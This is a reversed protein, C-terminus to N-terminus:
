ERFLKKLISYIIKHGKISFHIGVGFLFLDSVGGGNNYYGILYDALNLTTIDKRKLVNIMLKQPSLYNNNRMRLQYEYPLLVVYLKIEYKDLINKIGTLNAVAKLFNPNQENYFKEDFLYYAKQRDTFTGKILHYLKFNNRFFIVIKNFFGNSKIEPTKIATYNSYVDNLCWFIFVSDIGLKNGKDFLKKVINLYDKSSYGVLSPNLVAVNPLTNNLLGPFTSDSEIGLGMTISDGLFLWKRKSDKVAKKYKWFGLANIYKVVGNSLGYSNPVLGPSNYYVNDKILTKETGPLKIRPYFIRVTIESFSLLLIFILINVSLVKIKDKM